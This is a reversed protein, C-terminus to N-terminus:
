FTGRLGAHGGGPLPSLELRATTDDESSSPAGAIVAIIGGIVLAGGGFLLIDAALARRSEQDFTDEVRAPCLGGTCADDLEDGASKALLAAAIGGALMAGGLALFTIGIPRGPGASEQPARMSPAAEDAEGNRLDGRRAADESRLREEISAIRSNVTSQQHEPADPAFRRLAALAEELRGLREYVNALNFLLAPRGSLDYSEQFAVAADDYNGEQYLRDGRLYLVRARDDPAAAEEPVPEAVAQAQPEDGIPEQARGSLPIWLVAATTLFCRLSLFNM